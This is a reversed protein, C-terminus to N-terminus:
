KELRLIDQSIPTYFLQKVEEFDKTRGMIWMLKTYAAETTMDYAELINLTSKLRGGVHYVSLDSGENPVQTTMIIIKGRRVAEAILSYFDSYEPIGGVGFSELIIGDYKEFFFSVVDPRIGPVLKLLGVNTNMKDSFAVEGEPMNSIYQLLRGEEVLALIPYNVSSFAQFSKTYTKRARTGLIVRGNFVISVGGAGGTAYTFADSLNRKSDTGDFWIPKQAGTLVIPKKSNRILYSLAAATYAMTDTGHSIVFGDFSDYNEKVTEAIKLWHRAEINTSDLNFIQKCEVDCLEKIKPICDILEKPTLEPALGDSTLESAITGGTGIMLIKKM